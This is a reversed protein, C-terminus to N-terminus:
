VHEENGADTAHSVYNKLADICLCGKNNKKKLQLALSAVAKHIRDDNAEHFFTDQLSFLQSKVSRLMPSNSQHRHWEELNNLTHTIIALAKPVEAQRLSITKDLVASVQDVDLYTIQDIEKVAPHVNAPVSLDLVLRPRASKFFHPLVTYNEAATSVIIIDAEDVAGTTQAFPVYNGKFRDAMERAKEETRNTFSIEAGPLYDNFNEALLNGFKGTGVLLVKKGSIDRIKERIIEISAYSVSVTGSSLNTKTKIEKSVQLAYNIAREMFSNIANHAKALAAAKKLQSLIEYDGIIQSDLGSAVKFLHEIADIGQYVYGHQLFDELSGKTHNCLLAALDNPQETLGYIETRNCTSLVLCGSHNNAVANKIVADTQVPSLSFRGRINMDSKRYNIGVICFNHLATHYIANELVM